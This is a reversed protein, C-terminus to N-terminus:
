YKILNNLCKELNTKTTNNNMKKIKNMRQIKNKKLFMKKRLKYFKLFM